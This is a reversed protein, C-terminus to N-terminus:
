LGNEVHLQNPTALVIGDPRDAALLEALSRHWRAGTLEAYQRAADTPDAISHLEAGPTAAIAEIHRRGILGAGAVAIRVPGSVALSWAGAGGRQRADGKRRHRSAGHHLYSSVRDKEWSGLSLM